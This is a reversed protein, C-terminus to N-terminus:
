IGASSGTVRAADTPMNTFTNKVRKSVLFYPIWICAILVGRVADKMVSPDAPTGPVAERIASESWLEAIGATALLLYHATAFKTVKHNKRFVLFLCYIASAIVLGGGVLSVGIPIKLAALPGSSATFIAAITQTDSVGQVVNWLTILATGIFGIIPLILWGGIGSPGTTNPSETATPMANAM